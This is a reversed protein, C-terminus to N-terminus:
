SGTRPYPIKINITFQGVATVTAGPAAVPPVTAAVVYVGQSLDLQLRSDTAYGDLYRYGTGVDNNTRSSPPPTDLNVAVIDIGGVAESGTARYLELYTDQPSSSPVAGLRITVNTTADYVRFVFYQAPRDGNPHPVACADDDPWAQDTLHWRGRAVHTVCRAPATVTSGDATKTITLAYDSSSACVSNGRNVEAQTDACVTGGLDYPVPTHYATAIGRATTKPVAINLKAAYTGTTPSNVTLTGSGGGYGLTTSVNTKGTISLQADAPEYDFVVTATKGAVTHMSTSIGNVTVASVVLNYNGTAGVTATTAEITYRGPALEVGTLLSDAAPGSNDDSDVATGTGGYGNLLILYPDLRATGTGDLSITVWTTKPITFTYRQAYYLGRSAPDDLRRTSTCAAANTVSGSRTVAGPRLTGLHQTCPQQATLTVTRTTPTRGTHTCTVTVQRIRPAALSVSLTRDRGTTPTVTGATTTCAAVAPSVTFPDTFSLTGTGTLTHDDLGDIEVADRCSINVRATKSAVDPLTATATATGDGNCSLVATATRHWGTSRGLIFSPTVTGQQQSTVTVNGTATWALALGPTTASSDAAVRFTGDPATVCDYAADVGPPVLAANDCIGGTIARVTVSDLVPTLATLTSAATATGYGVRRCTVTIDTDGLTTLNASLVRRGGGPDTVAGATPTCTADAPLVTFYDNATGTGVISRGNLNSILVDLQADVRLEYDGSRRKNATTAEITYDGPALRLGALRAGNRPGSNNDRGVVTGTGDQSHGELLVVVTDLGRRTPPGVDIRVTAPNALTFTHRRAPYQKSNGGNTRRQPSVCAPNQAITGSRATVGDALTGLPDDCSDVYSVTFAATATVPAHGPPTCDVSVTAGVVRGPVATLGMSVTRVGAIGETVKPEGAASSATCRAAAPTVTFVTSVTVAGTGAGVADELDAIAGQDECVVRVDSVHTVAGAGSGVKATVTVSGDASCELVVSGTRRWVGTLERNPAAVAAVADTRRSSVAAGGSDSWGISIGRVKADATAALM